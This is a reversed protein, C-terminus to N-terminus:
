ELGYDKIKRLLTNRGIGLIRACASRNGEHVNLLYAIYSAELERLSPENAFRDDSDPAERQLTARQAALPQGFPLTHLEMTANRRPLSLRSPTIEDDSFIVASEICNELERVNGPWSHFLLVSLADRRISQVPRNHRRAAKAVFHNILRLLDERGRERLPPMEVIVVRLRYYLDERFRGEAVLAKLDRNTAAVIRINAKLTETGGLRTFAREQIVRLLKGQLNLPLDGIEDLFLTGGDAQEVKGRQRKQAGTFAGREHGFLENEMLGEPLTTCDVPVFPGARRPSNHHLARAILSKGTGSEGRLLVTADTPAVRRIQRFVQQMAPGQGIIKNFRDLLPSEHSQEAGPTRTHREAEGTYDHGRALTTQALLAAVQTSLARFRREDDEDFIGARKNLFQVVGTFHGDADYLPGALMSRTNYGTTEDIRRWFRQDDECYPINVVRESRAVYGAVGHEIPVRIEEVEPLHGAISVLETRAENLLFITGRDADLQQAMVGVVRQLLEGVSIEKRILEGLALLLPDNM